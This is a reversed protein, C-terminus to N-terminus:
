QEHMPSHMIDRRITLGKRQSPHVVLVFTLNGPKLRSSSVCHFVYWFEDNSRVAYCSSLQSSSFLLSCFWTEPCFFSFKGSKLGARGGWAAKPALEALKAPLGEFDATLDELLDFVPKLLPTTIATIADLEGEGNEFRTPISALDGPLKQLTTVVAKLLAEVDAQIPYTVDTIASPDLAASRGSLSPLGGGELATTLAEVIDAVQGPLPGTTGVSSPDQKVHWIHPEL